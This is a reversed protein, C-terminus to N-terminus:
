WEDIKKIYIDRKEPREVTLMLRRRKGEDKENCIKILINGDIPLEYLPKRYSFQFKPGFLNVLRFIVKKTEDKLEIKSEKIIFLNDQSIALIELLEEKDDKSEMKSLDIKIKGREPTKLTSLDRFNTQVDRIISGLSNVLKILEDPLGESHKDIDDFLQNSAKILAKNQIEIPITSKIFVDPKKNVLLYISHMQKFFHRICGDSMNMVMDYGAYLFTQNFERCLCLAAGIEKKRFHGSYFQRLEKENTPIKLSLKEILYTEYYPWVSFSESKGINNQLKNIHIFLKKAKKIFNIVKENKSKKLQIDLLYNINWYGLIKKINISVDSNLLYKIRLNTVNTVFDNFTTSTEIFESLRYHTRDADGLYHRPIYSSHIDMMGELSAIVFSICESKQTVIIFTNLVKQQYKSYSQAEDICIKLSWLKPSDSDEIKNKTCLELIIPVLQSILEGKQLSPFEESDPVPFNFNAFRRIKEHQSQFYSKIDGLLIDNSVNSFYNKVENRKDIIKKVIKIEDEFTYNLIDKAYLGEIANIALQLIEYEIFISFYLSRLKELDKSKLPKNKPIWDDFGECINFPTYLYIGIYKKIFPHINKLQDKISKNNIRQDWELSRLLTTKGSGRIGSIYINKKSELESINPPLWIIHETEYEWKQSQFPSKIQKSM